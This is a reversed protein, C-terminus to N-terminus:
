RVVLVIYSMHMMELPPVPAPGFDARVRRGGLNFREEKRNLSEKKVRIEKRRGGVTIIGQEEEGCM